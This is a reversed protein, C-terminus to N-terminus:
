FFVSDGNMDTTIKLMDQDFFDDEYDNLNKFQVGLSPMGDNDIATWGSAIVYNNSLIIYVWEEDSLIAEVLANTHNAPELTSFMDLNLCKRDVKKFGGLRLSYCNKYTEVLFWEGEHQPQYIKKIIEGIM